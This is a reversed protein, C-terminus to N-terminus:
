SAPTGYESEMVDQDRVKFSSIVERSSVQEGGTKLPVFQSILDWEYKVKLEIKMREGFELPTMATEPKIETGNILLRFDGESIGGNSLITKVERYLQESDVYNGVHHETPATSIGGQNAAVRGVYGTVSSATDLKQSISVMDVFGGLAMLTIIVAIAVEITTMGATGKLRDKIAQMRQRFQKM